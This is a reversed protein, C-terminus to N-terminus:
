GQAHFFRAWSAQLSDHQRGSLKYVTYLISIPGILSGPLVFLMALAGEGGAIMAGVLALGFGAGPVVIFGLFMWLLTSGISRYATQHGTMDELAIVDKRFMMMRYLNLGPVLMMVLHNTGGPGLGAHQKLEEARRHIYFLMYIGLTFPAYLFFILGWSVDPVPSHAPMPIFEDADLTMESLGGTAAAASSQERRRVDAAAKRAALMPGSARAMVGLAVVAMFIVGINTVSQATLGLGLFGEDPIGTVSLEVNERTFVGGDKPEVSLTFRFEDEITAGYPPRVDVMIMLVEGPQLLCMLDGEEIRCDGSGDDEIDVTWGREGASAFIRADTPVNGDNVVAVEFTAKDPFTVNLKSPTSTLDFGLDEIIRVDLVVSIRGDRNATNNESLVTVDLAGGDGTEAGPNVTLVLEVLVEYPRIEYNELNETLGANVQALQAAEENREVIPAGADDFMFRSEAVNWIGYGEPIYLPGTVPLGYVLVERTALGELGNFEFVAMDMSANGTNRVWLDVSMSGGPPLEVRQTDGSFADALRVDMSYVKDFREAVFNVEKQNDPLGDGDEDQAGNHDLNIVRVRLTTSDREEVGEVKVMLAVDLSGRAPVQVEIITQDQDDVFRTTWESPTQDMVVCRFTADVNGENEITIPFRLWANVQGRQNSVPADIDMGHSEAVTAQVTAEDYTAGGSNPLVSVVIEVQETALADMPVTVTMTVDASRDSAHKSGLSVSSVDFSVTWGGPPASASIRFNDAGNGNNTVSVTTTRSSGPEINSMMSQPISVSAGKTQGLTIRLEAECAVTGGDRGQVIVTSVSDADLSDDPAINLTFSREDSSTDYPLLGSSAGDVSVWNAKPGTRAVNIDWEANGTNEFTVQVQGQKGPDVRISTKSLSAECTHLEPVELSIEETDSANQSPDNQVTATIDWCFTDADQGNPVTTSVVVSETEESAVSVSSPDFSISFDDVSACGPDDRESAAFVVTAEARGTNEVEMDWEVPDEGAWTLDAPGDMRLDVGYVVSGSGDGAETTVTREENAPQGPPEPPEPQETAAATITTDCDGEATQSLTVNMTTEEYNGADIPGPIQQIVSSYQGCEQTQAENASLQVTVPNSGTNYVRVTYEGSEGPNVTLTSPTVTLVISADRGDAAAPAIMPTLSVLMLFILLVARAKTGTPAGHMGQPPSRGMFSRRRAADRLRELIPVKTYRMEPVDGPAPLRRHRALPLSCWLVPM